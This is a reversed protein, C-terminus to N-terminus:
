KRMIKGRASFVIIILLIALGALIPGIGVPVTDQEPPPVSDSEPTPVPMPTAIPEQRTGVMTGDLRGEQGRYSYSGNITGQLQYQNGVRQITFESEARVIGFKNFYFTGVVGEQDAEGSINGVVRLPYGQFEGSLVFMGDKTDEILLSVSQQSGQEATITVDYIGSIDAQTNINGTPQAVAVAAGVMIISIALGLCALFGMSMITAIMSSQKVAKKNM